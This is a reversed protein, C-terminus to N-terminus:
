RPVIFQASGITRYRAFSRAGLGEWVYWHYRGPTLRYRHGAWRWAAPLGLQHTVPWAAFLRKSGRFLQVHYYAAQRKQGWRLIPKPAVRPVYRMKRLTLVKPLAMVSIKRSLNGAQDIAQAAYRYEIDSLVRKDNFATGAGRYVVPEQKSGRALRQLVVTDSPSSSKWRVLDSASRSTVVLKSLVPATADYSFAFPRSAVNGAQDRCIGTVSASPRDPGSYTATTCSAIGSTADSGQWRITLPATYWGTSAAGRDPTVATIKPATKDVRISLDVKTSQHNGNEVYCHQPSAQTDSTVTRTNCGDTNLIGSPDSYTWTVTVNHTYWPACNSPGPNCSFTVLPASAALGSSASLVGATALAVVLAVFLRLSM